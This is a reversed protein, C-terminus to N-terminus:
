EGGVPVGLSGSAFKRSKGSTGGQGGTKFLVEPSALPISLTGGDSFTVSIQGGDCSLRTQGASFDSFNRIVMASAPDPPEQNAGGLALGRPRRGLTASAPDSQEWPRLFFTTRSTSGSSFVMHEQEGDRWYWCGSSLGMIQVALSGERYWLYVYNRDSYWYLRWDGLQYLHNGEIEVVVPYVVASISKCATALAQDAAERQRRAQRAGDGCAKESLRAEEPDNDLLGDIQNKGEGQSARLSAHCPTPGPGPGPGPDADAQCASVHVSTDSNDADHSAAARPFCSSTRCRLSANDLLAKVVAKREEPGPNATYWGRITAMAKALAEEKRTFDSDAAAGSQSLGRLALYQGGDLRTELSM